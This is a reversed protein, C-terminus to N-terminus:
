TNSPHVKEWKRKLVPLNNDKSFIALNRVISSDLIRIEAWGDPNIYSSTSRDSNYINYLRLKMMTLVQLWSSHCKIKLVPKNKDKHNFYLTGDGDFYGLFMSLFQNDTLWFWNSTDPPNYTKRNKMDFWSRWEPMVGKDTTNLNYRGRTVGDFGDQVERYKIRTESIGLFSALELLPEKESLTFTIGRGENTIGGDALYFGAWYFMELKKTDLLPHLHTPQPSKPLLGLKNAKTRISWESRGQLRTESLEKATTIPYYKKLIEEEETSYRKM